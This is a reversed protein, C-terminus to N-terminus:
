KVVKDHLFGEQGVLGNPTWEISLDASTSAKLLKKNHVSKRNHELLKEQM